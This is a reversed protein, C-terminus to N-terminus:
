QCDLTGELKASTASYYQGSSKLVITGGDGRAVCWIDIDTQVDGNDDFDLSGSVGAVDISEGAALKARAEALTAPGLEAPAGPPVLKRLGAAMGAGTLNGGAAVSALALLYGADYGNDAFTDPEKAYKAQFRAAFSAYAAGPRGPVTGLVRTRLSDNAGIVDSLDGTTRGGDPLLYRPAPAGAPLTAEVGKMIETVIENTGLPLLIHPRFAAVDAVVPAYDVNPDEEPDDYPISLLNKLNEGSLPEGNLQILKVIESEIGIGYADQKVTMALRIKDTPALAFEARVQEELASVLRALPVAQFADSAVNRWVLDQDQLGSISPSTASPSMLLVGAPITVEQATKITVGSFAPGIIAPVRVQEVLHRAARVSDDLDHCSVVVVKRDGTQNIEEVALDWGEKMPLGLSAFGGTIPTMGGFVVPDTSSGDLGAVETCDQSTLAVCQKSRCVAPGGAQDICQQNSACGQEDGGDDDSGCGLPAGFISLGLVWIVRHNTMHM